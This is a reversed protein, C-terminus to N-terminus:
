EVYIALDPCSLECIKCRTCREPYKAAAINYGKKNIEESMEFVGRPCYYLCLECGKCIEGDIYIAVQM